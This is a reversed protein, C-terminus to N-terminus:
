YTRYLMKRFGPYVNVVNGCHIKVPKTEALGAKVLRDLGRLIELDPAGNQNVRFYSRAIYPVTMFEERAGPLSEYLKDDNVTIRSRAM